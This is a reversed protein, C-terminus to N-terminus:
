GCGGVVVNVRQRQSYFRDEAKVIAVVDGTENMKLRLSVFAQTNKALRFHAALPFPNKEVFLAIEEAVPLTSQVTVPIVAGDEATDPATITIRDSEIPRREGTFRAIALDLKAAPQPGGAM